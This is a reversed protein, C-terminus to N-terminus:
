QRRRDKIKWVGLKHFFGIKCIDIFMRIMGKLTMKSGEIENWTVSVEVVVMKRSRAIVLLEPDFCWRQIHQNMFLWRCAKRTFMKFGCQTDKVGRVGSLFILFHMGLGLFKRILTRKANKNQARSGVVIAEKDIYKKIENELKNLETIDTAGDADVMLILEGRAHLCGVQIAAGKGMNRIQNILFINSNKKCIDCVIDTTTDTSGDNVVIIEWTFKNNKQKKQNLFSVTDELMKPIRESENYAPVVLSLYVSSSNFINFESANNNSPFIKYTAKNESQEPLIISDFLTKDSVFRLVVVLVLAFFLLSLMVLNFFNIKTDLDSLIKTFIMSFTFEKKIKDKKM